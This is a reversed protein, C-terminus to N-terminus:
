MESTAWSPTMENAWTFHITKTKQSCVWTRKRYYVFVGCRKNDDGDDDANTPTDGYDDDDDDDDSCASGKQIFYKPTKKSFCM